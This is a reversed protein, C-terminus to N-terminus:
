KKDGWASVWNLAVPIVWQAAIGLGGAAPIRLADGLEKTWPLYNFLFLTVIPAFFGATMTSSFLSGAVRGASLQGKLYSLSVLGGAFGALLTDFHMGMVTGSLAIVTGAVAEGSLNADAM